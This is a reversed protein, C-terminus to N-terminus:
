VWLKINKKPVVYKWERKCLKIIGFVICDYVHWLKQDFICNCARTRPGRPLIKMNNLVVIILWARHFFLFFAEIIAVVIIIIGHFVRDSYSIYIVLRRSGYGRFIIVLSLKLIIYLLVLCFFFFFSALIHFGLFCLLLLYIVCM